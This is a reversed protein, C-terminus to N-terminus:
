FVGFAKRESLTRRDAAKKRENVTDQSSNKYERRKLNMKEGWRGITKVPRLHLYEFGPKGKQNKKTKIKTTQAHPTRRSPSRWAKRAGRGKGKSRRTKRSM